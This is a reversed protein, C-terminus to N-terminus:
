RRGVFKQMMREKWEPDDIAASEADDGARDYPKEAGDTMNAGGELAAETREPTLRSALRKLKAAKHEKVAQGCDHLIMMQELMILVDAIEDAIAERSDKGRAHKCLEKQLESMEEFVMLTQADPGWTTLALRYLEQTDRGEQEAKVLERFHKIEGIRRYERLEHMLIIFKSLDVAYPIEEPELGTAEYAALRKLARQWGEECMGCNELDEGAKEIGCDMCRALEDNGCGDIMTLREM